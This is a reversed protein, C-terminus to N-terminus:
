TEPTLFLECPPFIHAADGYLIVMDLAWKKCSRASFRFRRSRLVAICDQPFEVDEKLSLMVIM